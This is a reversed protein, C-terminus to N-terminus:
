NILQNLLRTAETEDILVFQNRKSDYNYVDAHEIDFWWGHITLTGEALKKAVAPYSKVNEMQLVINLHSLQNQETFNGALSKGDKLQAVAPKGHRLWNKLNPASDKITTPNMLAAMAGCDSHGCVILSTINLNMVAFEIAAAESEDSVSVGHKGCPPVMNGVNRLVFLDGPKTSAVINPVVRSDCCGIFLTDPSQGAVLKGYSEKYEKQVNKRFEIIGQLLKKM